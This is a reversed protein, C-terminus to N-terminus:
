PQEEAPAGAQISDDGKGETIKSEQTFSRGCYQCFSADASSVRGCDPCVQTAAPAPLQRVKRHPLRLQPMRPKPLRPRPIRRALSQAIHKGRAFAQVYLDRMQKASIHRGTLYWQLIVNGVVYTGAYSVAVKPIIGWVPVLGVLGRALQRWLFGGGLVSGFEAVYDQWRTSYGLSLGLKFVLYAQTKTLVFMDAVNLPVDFVPVIEALGTSLSYAANSLSTDNILYHAVPVRFLPFSRGLGLIQGPLLEIVALAFKGVLFRTDLVSGRIIRRHKWSAWPTIARTEARTPPPAGAKVIASDEQPTEFQNLFVLVKKGSNAWYQALQQERATDAKSADIMLIILDAELAPQAADLDLIMVPTDAALQPRSPDQRMQSALTSRGSGPAGALVIKVGNLAQQRLPRLDIEQINKWVNMLDSTGAM